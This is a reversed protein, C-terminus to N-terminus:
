FRIDSRMRMKGHKPPRQNLQKNFANLFVSTNKNWHMNENSIIIILVKIYFLNDSNTIHVLMPFVFLISKLPIGGGTIFQSADLKSFFPLLKLEM